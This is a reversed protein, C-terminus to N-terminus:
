QRKGIVNAYLKRWMEAKIQQIDDRSHFTHNQHIGHTRATRRPRAYGKFASGDFAVAGTGRNRMGDTNGLQHVQRV